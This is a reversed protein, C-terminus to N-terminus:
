YRMNNRACQILNTFLNTGIRTLQTSDDNQYWNMGCEMLRMFDQNQSMTNYIQTAVNRLNEGAVPKTNDLLGENM